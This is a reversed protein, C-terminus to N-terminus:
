YKLHLNKRTLVLITFEPDEHEITIILGSNGQPIVVIGKQDKFGYWLRLKKGKFVAVKADNLHQTILNKAVSETLKKDDTTVQSFKITENYNNALSLFQSSPFKTGDDTIKFGDPLNFRIGLGENEYVPNEFYYPLVQSSVPHKKGNLNFSQVQINSIPPFNKISFNSMIEGTKGKYLVIKLAPNTQIESTIDQIVWINNIAVETWVKSQWFWQNYVYGYVQRAPLGLGLALQYFALDPYPQTKAYSQISNLKQNISLSNLLLSDLVQHTKTKRWIIESHTSPISDTKDWPAKENSIVLVLSSDHKTIKQNNSKFYRTAVSDVGTIKLKVSSINQPDPFRINSLLRDTNPIGSEFFQSPRITKTRTLKIEGFPSKSTTEVLYFDNDFLSTTAQTQITEKVVKFKQANQISFGVLERNVQVTQNLEPSFTPYCINAGITDLRKISLKRIKEPGYVINVNEFKLEYGLTDQFIQSWSISKLYGSDSEVFHADSTFQLSDTLTLLQVNLFTFTHISQDIATIQKFSGARHNNIEVQYQFEQSLVLHHTFLISFILILIRM